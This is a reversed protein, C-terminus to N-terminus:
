GIHKFPSCELRVDALAPQGQLLSQSYTTPGVQPPLVALPLLAPQKTAVRLFRVPFPRSQKLILLFRHYSPKGRVARTFLIFYFFDLKYDIQANRWTICLYGRVLYSFTLLSFHDSDNRGRPSM